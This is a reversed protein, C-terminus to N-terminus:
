LTFIWMIIYIFPTDDSCTASVNFKNSNGLCYNVLIILEVFIYMYM